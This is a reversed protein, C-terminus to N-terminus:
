DHRRKQMAIRARCRPHCYLQDKRQRLFLTGCIGQPARTKSLHRLKDPIPAPAPCCAFKCALRALIHGLELRFADVVNGTEQILEGFSEVRLTVSVKWTPIWLDELLGVIAQKADQHCTLVDSWTCAEIGGTSRRQIMGGEELPQSRTRHGFEWVEEIKRHRDHESLEELTSNAFEFVWRERQSRSMKSPLM